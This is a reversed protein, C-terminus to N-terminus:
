NRLKVYNEWWKDYNNLTKKGIKLTIEESKDSGMEELIKKILYFVNVLRKRGLDENIKKKMKEDIKILKDYVLSKEEDSLDIIDSIHSVKKEYYYKPQYISKKQFHFRDYEKADFYGLVHGSTTSCNECLRYGSWIIFKPDSCCERRKEIVDNIFPLDLNKKINDEMISLYKYIEEQTYVM